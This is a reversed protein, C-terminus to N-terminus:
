LESLTGEAADECVDRRCLPCVGHIETLWKDVCAMHFEHHCPLVRIKDAEEYEALCIYCQDVDDAISDADHKVHSKILLSNVVSEPAPLSGISLSLPVPQRHIEDLVEFLAEALLVIRSISARTSSEEAVLLSDCSCTGDPHLGSPCFTTRRSDSDYGGLLRERIESRSHWRRGNTGHSRRHLYLSDHDFRSGFLDDSIDLLLRDHSGLDGGDETSSFISPSDYNRRTTRRSLADWFLRRSNRRAENSIDGSGSPLANSSISVVDVHLVSDSREGLTLFETASSTAALLPEDELLNLSSTSAASAPNPCVCHLGLIEESPDEITSTVDALADGPELQSISSSFRVSSTQSVSGATSDDVVMVPIVTAATTTLLPELHDFKSSSSAPDCTRKSDTIGLGSCASAVCPVLEKSESLCKGSHSTKADSPVTPCDKFGDNSSLNSRMHENTTSSSNNESSISLSSEKISYHLSGNAVSDHPRGPIVLNESAEDKTQPPAAAASSSAGGCLFSALGLKPRNDSRSRPSRVAMRSSGSGM